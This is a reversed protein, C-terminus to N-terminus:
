KDDHQPEQFITQLEHFLSRVYTEGYVSIMSRAAQQPNNLPLDIARMPVPGGESHFGRKARRAIRAPRDSPAAARQRNAERINTTKQVYTSGSRKVSRDASDIQPVEGSLDQRARSVTKHDVKCIRAIARDSWPNGHEDTSVLENTLVTVVANRKDRNTRQLGHDANAGASHLIAERLTGERVDVEIQDQGARRHAHYRHFGDALWYVVGDHFAIM